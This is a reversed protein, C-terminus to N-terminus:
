ELKALKVVEEPGTTDSSISGSGTRKDAEVSLIARRCGDQYRPLIISPSRFNSLRACALFGSRGLAYSATMTLRSGCSRIPRLLVLGDRHDTINALDTSYCLCSSVQSM